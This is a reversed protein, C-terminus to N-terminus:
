QMVEEKSSPVKKNIEGELAALQEIYETLQRRQANVCDVIKQQERVLTDMEENGMELQILLLKVHDNDYFSNLSFDMLSREQDKLHLNWSVIVLSLFALSLVLILAINKAWWIAVEKNHSDDKQLSRKDFSRNPRDSIEAIRASCSPDIDVADRPPTTTLREPYVM